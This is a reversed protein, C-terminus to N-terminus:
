KYALSIGRERECVRVAHLLGDVVDLSDVLVM